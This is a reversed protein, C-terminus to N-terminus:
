YDEQGINAGINGPSKLAKYLIGQTCDLLPRNFGGLEIYRDVAQILVGITEKSPRYLGLILQSDPLITVRLGPAQDSQFRVADAYFNVSISREPM